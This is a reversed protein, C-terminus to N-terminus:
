KLYKPFIPLTENNERDHQIILRGNMNKILRNLRDSSALTDARDYNFVPVGNRLHNDTFHWQDGSLFITGAEPLEVQLAMHGPTHGTLSIVKVSGDGYIDADGNMSRVQKVGEGQLFYNILDPEMHYKRALDPNKLFTYETEQIILSAKTFLNANGIHDFHAHSVGLETIDEPRLNLMSLQSPITQDVRLLFPGNAKGNPLEAISGPLGSDWLLWDNNHKILYCSAVLDITEGQYANTDSFVNKPDIHVRGCDLRYLRVDPNTAEEAEVHTSTVAFLAFAGWLLKKM